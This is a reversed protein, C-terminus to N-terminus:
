LEGWAKKSRVIKKQVTPWTETMLFYDEFRNLMLVWFKRFDPYNERLQHEM